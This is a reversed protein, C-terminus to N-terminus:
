LGTPITRAVATALDTLSSIDEDPGTYKGPITVEVFAKRLTTTCRAGGDSLTQPLWDVGDIEATDATPNYHANGPTLVDPAPVGCRLVIAPSGWAATLDSAPRTARLTLGDVKRPLVGHLARCLRATAAPPRPVAVAGTGDGHSCGAVALLCVAVPVRRLSPFLAVLTSRRHSSFSM